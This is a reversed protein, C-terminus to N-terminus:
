GAPRPRAVDVVVVSVNDPAGAHHAADFLLRTVTPADAERCARRLEDRGVVGTLGDTCLLLRLDGEGGPVAEVHPQLRFGPGGGLAQTVRGSAEGSPTAVADDTSLQEPYGDVVLYVRSDGVSFWLVERGGVVIGAVTTGMGSLRADGEAAAYLGHDVARLGDRVADPGDWGDARAAIEQVALRSALAGAAHGGLGDAVAVVVAPPGVEASIVVPQPRDTQCVWGLLLLADENAGRLLGRGTVAAAKVLTSM